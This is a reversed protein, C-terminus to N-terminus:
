ILGERGDGTKIILRGENIFNTHNKEINKKSM